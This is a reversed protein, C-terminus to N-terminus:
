ERFRLACALDGGGQGGGRFDGRLIERGPKEQGDWYTTNVVGINLFITNVVWIYIIGNLYYQSGM